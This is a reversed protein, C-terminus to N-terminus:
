RVATQKVVSSLVKRVTRIQREWIGGHQSTATPNFIWQVGKIMIAENIRSQDLEALAERLERLKCNLALLIEAM